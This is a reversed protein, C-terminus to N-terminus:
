GEPVVKGQQAFKLSSRCPLPGEFARSRIPLDANGSQFLPFGVAQDSIFQEQHWSPHFIALSWIISRHTRLAQCPQSAARESELEPHGPGKGHRRLPLLREPWGRCNPYFYKEQTQKIAQIFRVLISVL